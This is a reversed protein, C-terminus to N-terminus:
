TSQNTELLSIVQKMKTPLESDFCTKKGTKPHEFELSKAHLAQGVYQKLMTVTQDPLKKTYNRYRGYIPDGLLSHGISNLHVRIQHTRGTELKCQILSLYQFKKLLRWHTIAQKGGPRITFKKRDNPHRGLPQNITGHSTKPIGWVIAQYKRSIQHNFFQQALKEHSANDKAVVLLGSTDKDIRHVIGPRAPNNDSLNTYHLLYNVLTDTHHGASPHVVMGSPKNIVILYSDEFVIDLDYPVAILDTEPPPPCIFSIVDGARVTKKPTINENCQNVLVRSNKIIRQAESRSSVKEHSALAIDLRKLDFTEDVCLTEM